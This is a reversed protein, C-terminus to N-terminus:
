EAHSRRVRVQEIRALPVNEKLHRLLSPLRGSCETLAISDVAEVILTGREVRLARLSSSHAPLTTHIWTQACTVAQSSLAPGELGRERLVTPLIHSLRDM